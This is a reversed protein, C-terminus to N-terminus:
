LLAYFVISIILLISSALTSASSPTTTTLGATTTTVEGEEVQIAIAEHKELVFQDPNLFDNIEYNSKHVAALVRGIANPPIENIRLISRISLVARDGLNIFVVVPNQSEYKRVFAFVQRNIAM